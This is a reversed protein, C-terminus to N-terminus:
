LTQEEEVLTLTTDENSEAIAPVEKVNKYGMFDIVVAKSTNKPDGKLLREITTLFYESFQARDFVFRMTGFINTMADFLLGGTDAGKLTDLLTDVQYVPHETKIAGAVSGHKDSGGTWTVKPYATKCLHEVSAVSVESKEPQVRVRFGIVAFNTNKDIMIWFRLGGEISHTSDNGIVEFESGTQPNPMKKLENM